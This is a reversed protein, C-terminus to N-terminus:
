GMAAVPLLCVTAALQYANVTWVTAADSTGFSHAVDPLAINVVANSLNSLALGLMLCFMARRRERAPLGDHSM